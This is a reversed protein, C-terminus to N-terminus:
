GREGLALVTYARPIRERDCGLLSLFSKEGRYTYRINQPGSSCWSLALAEIDKRRPPSRTDAQVRVTKAKSARKARYFAVSARRRQRSCHLWNNGGRRSIM